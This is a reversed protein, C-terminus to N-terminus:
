PPNQKEIIFVMVENSSVGGNQITMPKGPENTVGIARFGIHNFAARLREAYVPAEKENGEIIGISCRHWLKLTSEPFNMYSQITFGSKKLLDSVQEMFDQTENDPHRTGIKVPGKQDNKLFEIFDKTKLTM